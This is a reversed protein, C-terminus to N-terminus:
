VMKTLNCGLVQSLRQIITKDPVATGAEYSNVVKAPLNAKTALQKQTLGKATRVAQILTRLNRTIAVPPPPDDSDHPTLKKRSLTKGRSNALASPKNWTIPDWDQNM